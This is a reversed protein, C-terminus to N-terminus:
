STSQDRSVASTAGSDQTDTPQEARQEALSELLEEYGDDGDFVMDGMASRIFEPRVAATPQEAPAGQSALAARADDIAERVSKSFEVVRESKFGEFEDGNGVNVMWAGKGMSITKWVSIHTDAGKYADLWNLRETDTPEAQAGQTALAAIVARFYSHKDLLAAAKTAWREAWADSIPMDGLNDAAGCCLGVLEDLAESMGAQAGQPTSSLAAQWVELAEEERCTWCPAKAATSYWWAEFREQKAPNM